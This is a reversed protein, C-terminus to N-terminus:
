RDVIPLHTAFSVAAPRVSDHRERHSIGGGLRKKLIRCIVLAGKKKKDPMGICVRVSFWNNGGLVRIHMVLHVYMYLAAALTKIHIIDGFTV